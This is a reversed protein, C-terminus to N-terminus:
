KSPPQPKDAGNANVFNSPKLPPPPLPASSPSGGRGPRTEGPRPKAGPSVKLGRSEPPTMPKPQSASPRNSGPLPPTPNNNSVGSNNNNGGFSSILSAVSAGEDNM